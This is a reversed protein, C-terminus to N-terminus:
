TRHSSSSQFSRAVTLPHMYEAGKKQTCFELIRYIFFWYVNQRDHTGYCVNVATVAFLGAADDQLAVVLRATRSKVGSTAKQSTRHKRYGRRQLFWQDVYSLAITCPFFFFNMEIFFLILM